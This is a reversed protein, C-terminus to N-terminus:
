DLWGASVEPCVALLRKLWARTVGCVDSTMFLAVLSHRLLKREWPAMGEGVLPGEQRQRM